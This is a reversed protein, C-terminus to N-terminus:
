SRSYRDSLSLSLTSEMGLSTLFVVASPLLGRWSRNSVASDCQFTPSLDFRPPRAPRGNYGGDVTFALAMPAAECPDRLNPAGGEVEFKAPTPKSLLAKGNPALGALGGGNQQQLFPSRQEEAGRVQLIGFGVKCYGVIYFM